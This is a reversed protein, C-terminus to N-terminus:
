GFFNIIRELEQKIAKGEYEGSHASSGKYSPKKQDLHLSLSVEKTDQNQKLYIHFRPYALGELPRVFSYEGAGAQASAPKYGRFPRTASSYGAERMINLINKGSNNKIIKKM